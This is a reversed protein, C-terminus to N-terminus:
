KKVNYDLLLNLGKMLLNDDFIVNKITKKFYLSDGGTLIVNLKPIAKKYFKIRSIIEDFTGFFVGSQISDTTSNGLLNKPESFQLNPLSNTFNTLSKLRLNIGPSIQGGKYCQNLILDYTICSGIDIILHNNYNPYLFKAGISGGLRDFGLNNLEDYEFDIMNKNINKWYILKVDKHKIINNIQTKLKSNKGCFLIKNITPFNVFLTTLEDEKQPNYITKKLLKTNKFVGLKINTNGIDVILYNM